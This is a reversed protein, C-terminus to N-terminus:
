VEASEQQLSRDTTRPIKITCEAGVTFDYEAPEGNCMAITGHMGDEIIRKSIYLGLGTGGDEKTSYYPEFIRKQSNERIGSGSDAIRVIIYEEDAEVRIEIIREAKHVELIADRANHLVNFVVHIMENQNGYVWALDRQELRIEIQNHRLNSELLNLAAQVCQVMSFYEMKRSDPKLFASFDTITEAMKGTITEISQVDEELKTENLEGFRYSDLVDEAILNISNLPQKWQHSINAIMEGIKAQKSQYTIMIDKQKISRELETEKKLFPTTYIGMAIMVLVALLLGSIVIINRIRNVSSYVVSEQSAMVLIWDNDLRAYSIVMQEGQIEHNMSGSGAAGDETVTDKLLKIIDATASQATKESAAILRCDADVLIANGNASVKMSNLLGLIDDAIIDAGIVGIMQDNVHVARTYSFVEEKIDADYYLSTWVGNRTQLANYYYAKDPDKEPHIGPSSNKVNKYIRDIRGDHLAVWAEKPDSTLTSDFVVYLSHAYDSTNLCSEMYNCADEIVGDVYDDSSSLYADYDFENEIYALLADALGVMHNLKSDMANANKECVGKMESDIEMRMSDTSKQILLGGIAIAIVISVAMIIAILKIIRKKIDNSSM